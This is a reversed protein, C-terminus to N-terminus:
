QVEGTWDVRKLFTEDASRTEMEATSSHNDEGESAGLAAQQKKSNQHPQGENQMAVFANKADGIMDEGLVFTYSNRCAKELEEVDFYAMDHPNEVSERRTSLDLEKADDINRDKEAGARKDSSTPQDVALKRRSSHASLAKSAYPNSSFTGINSSGFSKVGMLCLFSHFIPECHVRRQREKIKPRFYCIMNFAGQLPFMFQAIVSFWFFGATKVIEEQWFYLDMVRLIIMLGYPLVCSLFFLLAQIGTEKAITNGTKNAHYRAQMKKQQQLVTYHLTFTAIVKVTTLANLEVLGGLFVFAARHANDHECSAVGGDDDGDYRCGFPSPAAWCYLFIDHTSFMQTTLGVTVGIIAYVFPIIHLWPGIRHSFQRETWNTRISSCYYVALSANYGMCVVFLFMFTAGMAKCSTENGFAGYVGTEEPAALGSIISCFAVSINTVSILFWLQSYVKQLRSKKDVNVLHYVIVSSCAISFIAPIKTSWFLIRQQEPTYISTM